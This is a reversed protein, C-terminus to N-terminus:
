RQQAKMAELKELGNQMADAFWEPPDQVPAAAANPTATGFAYAEAVKKAAMRETLGSAKADAVTRAVAPVSQALHTKRVSGPAFKHASRLGSLSNAIASQGPPTVFARAAAPGERLPMFRGPTPAPAAPADREIRPIVPERQARLNVHAKAAIQAATIATEAASNPADLGEQALLAKFDEPSVAGDRTGRLPLPPLPFSNTGLLPAGLLPTTTDM